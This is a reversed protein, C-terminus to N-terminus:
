VLKSFRVYLLYKDDDRSAKCSIASASEKVPFFHVVERQPLCSLVTDPNKKIRGELFTQRTFAAQQLWGPQVTRNDQYGQNVFM